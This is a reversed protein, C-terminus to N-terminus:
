ESQVEHDLVRNTRIVRIRDFLGVLVGIGNLVYFITFLKATPTTPTLDGYGVTALSIVSFYLADLYSWGELWHYVFTGMILTVGAWAIIPRSDPDRLVDILFLNRFPHYNKM